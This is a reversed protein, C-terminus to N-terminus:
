DRMEKTTEPPLSFVEHLRWLRTEAVGGGYRCCCKTFLKISHLCVNQCFTFSISDGEIYVLYANQITELNLGIPVKNIFFLTETYDRCCSNLKKYSRGRKIKILTKNM